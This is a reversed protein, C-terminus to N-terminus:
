ATLALEAVTSHRQHVQVQKHLKKRTHTAIKCCAGKFQKPTKNQKKLKEIATAMSMPNTDLKSASILLICIMAEQEHM